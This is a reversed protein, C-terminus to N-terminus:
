VNFSVRLMSSVGRDVSLGAEDAVETLAGFYRALDDIDDQDISERAYDVLIQSDLTKWSM